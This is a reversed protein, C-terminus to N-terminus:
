KTAKKGSKIIRVAMIVIFIEPIKPSRQHSLFLSCPFSSMFTIFKKTFSFLCRPSDRSGANAAKM